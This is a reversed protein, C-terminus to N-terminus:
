SQRDIAYVSYIHPRAATPQKDASLSAYVMILNGGRPSRGVENTAVRLRPRLRTAARSNM